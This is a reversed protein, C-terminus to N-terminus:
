CNAIFTQFVNLRNLPSCYPYRQLFSTLVVCVSSLYSSLPLFLDLIFSFVERARQPHGPRTLLAIGNCIVATDEVFPSDPLSEDAVM